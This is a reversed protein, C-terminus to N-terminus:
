GVATASASHGPVLPSVIIRNCPLSAVLFFVYSHELKHSVYGTRDPVLRDANALALGTDRRLKSIALM